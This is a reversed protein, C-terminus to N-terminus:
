SDVLAILAQATKRDCGGFGDLEMMESKIESLCSQISSVDAGQILLGAIKPAYSTYEDLAIEPEDEYLGIPDWQEALVDNVKKILANVQKSRDRHDM